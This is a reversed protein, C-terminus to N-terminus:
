RQENDAEFRAETRARCAYEPTRDTGYEVFGADDSTATVYVDKGFRQVVIGDRYAGTDVPAIAQWYERVENAFELKDAIVNADIELAVEILDDEIFDELEAM